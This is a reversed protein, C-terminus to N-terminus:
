QFERYYIERTVPNELNVAFRSGGCAIIEASADGKVRAFFAMRNCDCAYNGEEWIYPNPVTDGDSLIEDSEYLRIEGTLNDKIHAIVRVWACGDGANAAVEM